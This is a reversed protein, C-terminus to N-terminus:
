LSDFNIDKLRMGGEWPKLSLCHGQIAWPSFQLADEMDSAGDFEFITVANNLNPIMIGKYRHWTARLVNHIAVLNVAKDCIM